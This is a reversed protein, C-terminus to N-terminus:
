RCGQKGRGVSERSGILVSVIIQQHVTVTQMIIGTM